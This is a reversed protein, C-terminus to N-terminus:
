SNDGSATINSKEEPFWYERIDEFVEIMSKNKISEKINQPMPMTNNNFFRSFESYLERLWVETREEETGFLELHKLSVIDKQYHFSANRFRRLRDVFPSQILDDIKPDNLELNKWGEIVVYLASYMYMLCIGPPSYLLMIPSLDGRILAEGWGDDMERRFCERMYAAFSYYRYLTVIDKRIKMQIRVFSQITKSDTILIEM